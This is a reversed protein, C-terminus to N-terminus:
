VGIIERPLPRNVFIPNKILCTNKNSLGELVLQALSKVGGAIKFTGYRTLDHFVAALVLNIIHTYLSTM